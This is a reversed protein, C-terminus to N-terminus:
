PHLVERLLIPDFKLNVGNASFMTDVEHAM